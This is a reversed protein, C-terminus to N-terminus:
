IRGILYKGGIYLGDSGLTGKLNYAHVALTLFGKAQILSHDLGIGAYFVVDQSVSVQGAEVFLFLLFFMVSTWLLSM